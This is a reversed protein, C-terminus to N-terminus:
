LCMETGGCCGGHAPLPWLSFVSWGWYNSLHFASESLVHSRSLNWVHSAPTTIPVALRKVLVIVLLPCISMSSPLNPSIQCGQLIVFLQSFEIGKRGLWSAISISHYLFNLPVEYQGHLINYQM